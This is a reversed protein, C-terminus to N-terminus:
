IKVTLFLAQLRPNKMIADKTTACDILPFKAKSVYAGAMKDDDPIVNLGSSCVKLKGIKKITPEKTEIFTTSLNPLFTNFKKKKSLKSSYYSYYSYTIVSQTFTKNNM